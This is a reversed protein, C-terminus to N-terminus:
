RYDKAFDLNQLLHYFIKLSVPCYLFYIIQGIIGCIIYIVICKFLNFSYNHCYTYPILTPTKFKYLCVNCHGAGSTLIYDQICKKHVHTRCNCNTKRSCPEFCIYCESLLDESPDESMWSIYYNYKISQIWTKLIKSYIDLM